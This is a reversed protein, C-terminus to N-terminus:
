IANNIQHNTQGDIIFLGEPKATNKKYRHLLRKCNETQLTSVPLDPVQVLGNQGPFLLIGNQTVTAPFCPKRFVITIQPHGVATLTLFVTVSILFNHNIRRM